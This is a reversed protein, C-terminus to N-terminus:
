PLKNVNKYMELRLTVAYQEAWVHDFNLHIVFSVNKLIAMMKAGQKVEARSLSSQLMQGFRQCTTCRANLQGCLIKMTERCSSCSLVIDCCILRKYELRHSHEKYLRLVCYTARGVDGWHVVFIFLQSAVILRYARTFITFKQMLTLQPLCDTPLSIRVFLYSILTKLALQTYCKLKTSNCSCFTFMLFFTASYSGHSENLPLGGPCFRTQHSVGELERFRQM